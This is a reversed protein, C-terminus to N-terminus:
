CRDSLVIAIDFFPQYEKPAPFRKNQVKQIFCQAVIEPEITITTSVKVIRDIQGNSQLYIRFRLEGRRLVSCGDKYVLSGCLAHPDPLGTDIWEKPYPPNTHAKHLTEKSVCGFLLCFLSYM